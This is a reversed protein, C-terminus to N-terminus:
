TLDLFLCKCLAFLFPISLSMQSPVSYTLSLSPIKTTIVFKRLFRGTLGYEFLPLRGNRKLSIKKM